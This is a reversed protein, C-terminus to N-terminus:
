KVKAKKSEVNALFAENDIIARVHEGTGVMQVDDYCTVEFVVKRGRIEKIRGECRVTMGIPTAAVHKVNVSVGVSGEGGALHPGMLTQCTNEMLAIMAPTAYVPALGSGVKAATHDYDVYETMENTLGVELM